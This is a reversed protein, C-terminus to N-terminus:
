LMDNINEGVPIIAPPNLESYLAGLGVLDQM